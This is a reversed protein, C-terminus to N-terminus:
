ATAAIMADVRLQRRRGVHDFLRAAEAALAEDFVVIVSVLSRMATEQESTIPGCLFEYWAVSSVCFREGSAVWHFLAGAERSGAVLGM